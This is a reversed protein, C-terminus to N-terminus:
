CVSSFHTVALQICIRAWKMCQAMIEDNPWVLIGDAGWLPSASGYLFSDCSHFAINQPFIPGKSAVYKKLLQLEQLPINKNFFPNKIHNCLPNVNKLNHLLIYAEDFTTRSYTYKRSCITVGLINIISFHDWLPYLKTAGITDDTCWKTHSNEM